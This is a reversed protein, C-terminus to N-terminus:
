PQQVTLRGSLSNELIDSARVWPGAIRTFMNRLFSIRWEEDTTIGRRVEDSTCSVTEQATPWHSSNAALRPPSSRARGAWVRRAYDHM